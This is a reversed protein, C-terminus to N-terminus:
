LLVSIAPVTSGHQDGGFAAFLGYILGGILLVVVAIVLAVRGFARVPTAADRGTLIEDRPTPETM